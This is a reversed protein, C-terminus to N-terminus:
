SSSSSPQCSRLLVGGKCGDLDSGMELAEKWREGRREGEEDWLEERAPGPGAVIDRRKRASSDGMSRGIM